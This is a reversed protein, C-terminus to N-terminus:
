FTHASNWSRSNNPHILTKETVSTASLGRILMKVSPMCFFIFIFLCSFVVCESASHDLFVDKAAFSKSENDFCIM